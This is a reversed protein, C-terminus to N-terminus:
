DNLNEMGPLNLNLGGTLDEMKKKMTTTSHEYAAQLAELVAIEIAEHGDSCLSPDIQIRLPEQNGSLWVSAKGNTSKGELELAELEEQLKQADQQIQQAKRFAETLQGFNPLGFAM